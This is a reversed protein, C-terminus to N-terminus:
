FPFNSMNWTQLYGTEANEVIEEIVPFVYNIGHKPRNLAPFIRLEELTSNM